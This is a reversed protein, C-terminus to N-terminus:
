GDHENSGYRREYEEKVLTELIFYEMDERLPFDPAGVRFHLATDSWSVVSYGCTCDFSCDRFPERRGITVRHHRFRRGAWLCVSKVKLAEM